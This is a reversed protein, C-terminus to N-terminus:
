GGSTPAKDKANPLIMEITQFRHACWNCERRRWDFHGVRGLKQFFLFAAMPPHRKTGANSSSTGVDYVHTDGNCKPCNM